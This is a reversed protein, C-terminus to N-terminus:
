QKRGRERELRIKMEEKDERNEDHTAEEWEKLTDKCEPTERANSETGPITMEVRVEHCENQAM